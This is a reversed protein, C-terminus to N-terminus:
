YRQRIATRIPLTTVKRIKGSNFHDKAASDEDKLFVKVTATGNKKGVIYTLVSPFMAM